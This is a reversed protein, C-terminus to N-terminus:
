ASLGRLTVPHTQDFVNAPVKWSTLGSNVDEDLNIKGQDVLRMAGIAAVFKSLSAAQFLTEPTAGSGYARALAVCDQDIPAISLSSINLAAM